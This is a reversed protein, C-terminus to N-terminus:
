GANGLMHVIMKQALDASSVRYSGSAIAARIRVVKEMRVDSIEPSSAFAM